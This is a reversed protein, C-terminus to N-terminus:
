ADKEDEAVRKEQELLWRRYDDEQKLRWTPLGHEGRREKLRRDKCFLCACTPNHPIPGHEPAAFLM